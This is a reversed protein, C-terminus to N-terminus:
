EVIYYLPFEMILYSFKYSKTEVLSTTTIFYAMARPSVVVM